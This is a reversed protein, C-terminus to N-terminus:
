QQKFGYGNTFGGAILQNPTFPWLYIPASVYDYDWFLYKDYEERNRILDYGWGRLIYGDKRKIDISAYKSQEKGNKDLVKDELKVLIEEILQPTLNSTITEIITEAKQTAGKDIAALSYHVEVGDSPLEVEKDFLGIIALNTEPKDTKYNLGHAAWDDNQGRWGPYLVPDNEKGVPCQATLRHGYETKADVLKTWVYKGIANGNEFEYYGNTELGDMMNKTLTKIRRLADPLFGSRILTWRRDGEGAYEFGREEIIARLLGGSAAIFEETKAMGAPFSRERVLKLYQLALTSENLAACVEAYGLYVEAMRMYPGNIGSKRQNAVWPNTQRNEDWKNLTLGGGEAKSNPYFSILKEKGDGTSGTMTISVDRRMDNPDFVGYYYAPNIRGQGYSKCPYANKSGGSSPRGFSYPRGDNGADPGQAMPYEYISEDAYIADSQHMQEFFYQYPNGFTRGKNDSAGRPDTLHFQANGPNQLVAEYYKKAIKYLDEWDTRRGYTAGNNENGMTEFTLANGEGDVRKIDGRRTQYGGADLCMRAILAQVYTKSFYNKNAPLVGPISGIPYMLPEVKMLDAICVDYISDRCSLGSPITGYVNVYPVDGWYKCLERYVTARMAVAEGYMQGLASQGGNIIEEFNAANEMNTIVANAKSIAEYMKNYLASGDDKLYSTLAYEGAYKGNQYFCEPYHRGLQNSFVEPHREIDSGAVDAAYFLGDGFVANQAAVRWAEYAGDLAARATRTNSFVFDADVSSPSSVELFDECSTAAFLGAVCFTTYLIKKM